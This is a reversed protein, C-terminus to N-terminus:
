SIVVQASILLQVSLRSLRGPAGFFFISSINWETCKKIKLAHMIKFDHQRAVHGQYHERYVSSIETRHRMLLTQLLLSSKSTKNTKFNRRGCLVFSKNKLIRGSPYKYFYIQIM